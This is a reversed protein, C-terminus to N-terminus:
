YRKDNYSMAEEFCNPCIKIDPDEPDILYPEGCIMCWDVKKSDFLCDECGEKEEFDPIDPILNKINKMFVLVEDYIEVLNEM